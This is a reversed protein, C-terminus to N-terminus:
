RDLALLCNAFDAFIARSREPAEHLVHHDMVSRVEEIALEIEDPENLTRTQTGWYGISFITFGRQMLQFLPREEMVGGSLRFNEDGHFRGGERFEVVLEEDMDPKSFFPADGPGGVIDIIVPSDETTGALKSEFVPVFQDGFRLGVLM